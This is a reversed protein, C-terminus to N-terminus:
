YRNRRDDEEQRRLRNEEIERRIQEQRVNEENVRKQELRSAQRKKFLVGEEVRKKQLRHFELDNEVDNDVALAVQTFALMAILINKKNKISDLM